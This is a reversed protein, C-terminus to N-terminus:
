ITKARAIIISLLRWQIEQKYINLTSFFQSVNYLIMLNVLTSKSTVPLRCFQFCLFITLADNPAFYPFLSVLLNLRTSILM